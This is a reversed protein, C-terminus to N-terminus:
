IKLNKVLKLAYNTFLSKNRTFIKMAINLDNNMLEHRKLIKSYNKDLYNNYKLSLLKKYFFSLNNLVILQHFFGDVPRLDKRLPTRIKKNFNKYLKFKKELINLYCHTTEHVISEALLIPHNGSLFITSYINKSTFTLSENQKLSNNKKLHIINTLFSSIFAFIEKSAESIVQFSNFYLKILNRNFDISIKNNNKKPHYVKDM